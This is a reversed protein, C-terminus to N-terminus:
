TQNTILLPWIGAKELEALAKVYSRSRETAGCKGTVTTPLSRDAHNIDAEALCRAFQKLCKRTVFIRKGFRAHELYIRRGTRSKVGKRCWRWVTAAHPRGPIVRTCDALSIYQLTSM